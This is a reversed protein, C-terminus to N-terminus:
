VQIVVSPKSLGKSQGSISKLEQEDKPNRAISLNIILAKYHRHGQLIYYAYLKQCTGMKIINHSTASDSSM